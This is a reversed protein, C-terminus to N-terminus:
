KLNIQDCSCCCYPTMRHTASSACHLLLLFLLLELLVADACINGNGHCVTVLLLVLVIVMGFSYGRVVCFLSDFSMNYLVGTAFISLYIAHYRYPGHIHGLQM